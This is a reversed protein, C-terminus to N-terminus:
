DKVLSNIIKPKFEFTLNGEKPFLAEFEEKSFFIEFRSVYEELRRLYYPINVDPIAPNFFEVLECNEFVKPNPDNGTIYYTIKMGPQCKDGYYKYALEYAANRTRRGSQVAEQYDQYSDWLIETKALDNIDLKLNQIDSRLELYIKPIM